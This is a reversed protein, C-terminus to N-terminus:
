VNNVAEFTKREVSVDCKPLAFATRKRCGGGFKESDPLQSLSLPPFGHCIRIPDRHQFFRYFNHFINRRMRPRDAAGFQLLREPYRLRGTVANNRCKRFLSPQFGEASVPIIQSPM